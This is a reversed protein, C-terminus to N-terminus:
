FAWYCAPLPSLFDPIQGKWRPHKSFILISFFFLSTYWINIDFILTELYEETRIAITSCDTYIANSPTLMLKYASQRAVRGNPFQCKGQPVIIRVVDM